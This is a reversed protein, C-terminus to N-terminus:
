EMDRRAMTTTTAEMPAIMMTLMTTRAKQSGRRVLEEAL